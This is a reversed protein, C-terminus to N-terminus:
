VRVIASSGDDTLWPAGDPGVIVGHPASERGLPIHEVKGTAPDLRGLAGIRQASYWVPGNPAPDAAVDHPNAGPPLAFDRRAVDARAPLGALAFVVAFAPVALIQRLMRM